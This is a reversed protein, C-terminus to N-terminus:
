PSAHKRTTLLSVGEVGALRALDMAEVLKKYPLLEDGQFYVIRKERGAIKEKLVTSFEGLTVQQEDIYIGGAATITVIIEKELSAKGSVAEPLTVKIAPNISLSANIMFFIVVLFIMDILPTLILGPSNELRRKLKM